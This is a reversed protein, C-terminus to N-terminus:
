VVWKKHFSYLWRAMPMTDLLMTKPYVVCEGRFGDKFRNITYVPHGEAIDLAYGGLDFYRKNKEKAFIIAQYMALHSVPLHRYSPHSYGKNFFGSDGQYCVCLGGIIEDKQSKVKLFYGNDNKKFFDFLNRFSKRTAELPLHIGRGSYMQLYQKSFIDIDDPDSIIEVKLNLKLAKIINRRHHHSFSKFIDEVSRDLDLKLTAWNTETDSYRFRLSQAPSIIGCSLDATYPPMIRIVMVGSLLCKRKLGSCVAMYDATDTVIPGFVVSALIMKKIKVCAYGCLVGDKYALLYKVFQDPEVAEKFGPYQEISIVKAGNYIRLVEDSQAANLTNTFIFDM